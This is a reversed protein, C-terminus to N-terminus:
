VGVAIGRERAQAGLWEVAEDPDTSTHLPCPMPTVLFFTSLLLRFAESPMVLAAAAM